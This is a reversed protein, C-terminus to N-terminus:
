SVYEIITQYAAEPTMYRELYIRGSQGMQKRLEADAYLHDFNKKYSEIDGAISWLGARAEELIQGYDTHKDLSALVPIQLNFYSLTKSPINPITFRENLSILGIDCLSVLRQYDDRPIFDKFIVNSVNKQRVIDEVKKRQTGKGVLLFIVDNYVECEKALDIVNELKQPVGMNGGFVVVFKDKIGYKQKLDETIEPLDEKEQFNQLIHLKQKNVEPNHKLVFQINAESMCGIKDAVAYLRKEKRRFYNYFFGNPNMMGLDAANQPFIDRLMLYFDAHDRRKVSEAVSVLTIPPTPMIILDFRVNKYFKRIAAKYQFPLLINAIGKRIPNVNFLKLTKVRLVEIGREVRLCTAKGHQLPAVPYVQHGQKAFEKVLDAYMNSSEGMDPLSLLLFLINM